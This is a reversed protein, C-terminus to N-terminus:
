MEKVVAPSYTEEIWTPLPKKITNSQTMRPQLRQALDRAVPEIEDDYVDGVTLAGEFHQYIDRHNMETNQQNIRQELAQLEQFSMKIQNCPMQDARQIFNLTYKKKPLSVTKRSPDLRAFEEDPETKVKAVLDQRRESTKALLLRSHSL